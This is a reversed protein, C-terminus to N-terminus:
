LARQLDEELFTGFGFRTSRWRAGADKADQLIGWYSLQGPDITLCTCAISTDLLSSRLLAHAASNRKVVKCELPAM